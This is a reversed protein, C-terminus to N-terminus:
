NCDNFESAAETFLFEDFKSLNIQNVPAIKKYLFESILTIEPM